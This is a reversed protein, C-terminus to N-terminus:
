HKPPINHPRRNKRIPKRKLDRVARCAKCLGNFLHAEVGCRACEPAPTLDLDDDYTM